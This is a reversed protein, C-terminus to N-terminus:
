KKSWSHSRSEFLSPNAAVNLQYDDVLITEEINGKFISDIRYPMLVGGTDRYETFRYGATYHLRPDAPYFSREIGALLGSPSVLVDLEDKVPLQRFHM